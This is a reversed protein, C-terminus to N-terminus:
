GKPRLVCHNKYDLLSHTTCQVLMIDGNELTIHHWSSTVKGFGRNINNNNIHKALLQSRMVDWVSGKIHYQKSFGIRGFYILLIIYLSPDVFVCVQNLIKITINKLLSKKGLMIVIFLKLNEDM